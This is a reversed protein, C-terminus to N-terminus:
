RGNWLWLPIPASSIAASCVGAFVDSPMRNTTGALPEACLTASIVIGAVVCDVPKPMAPPVPSSPWWRRRSAAGGPALM